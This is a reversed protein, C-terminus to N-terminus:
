TRDRYSLPTTWMKEIIQIAERCNQPNQILLGGYIPQCSNSHNPIGHIDGRVAQLVAGPVPFMHQTSLVRCTIYLATSVIHKKTSTKHRTGTQVQNHSYEVRFLETKIQKSNDLPCLRQKKLTQSLPILVKLFEIGSRLDDAEQNVQPM